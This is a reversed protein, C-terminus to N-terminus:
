RSAYALLRAQEHLSLASSSQYSLPTVHHADALQEASYYYDVDIPRFSAGSFYRALAFRQGFLALTPDIIEGAPGMLWGHEIPWEALIIWGEVYFFTALLPTTLIALMSNRYCCNQRAGILSAVQQSLFLNMTPFTQQLRISRYKSTNVPFSSFLHRYTITGLALRM